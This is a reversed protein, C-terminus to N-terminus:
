RTHAASEIAHARRRKWARALSSKPPAPLPAARPARSPACRPSPRTPMTDGSVDSSSSAALEAHERSPRPARPEHSRRGRPGHGHTTVSTLSSGSSASRGAVAASFASARVASFRGRNAHHPPCWQVGIRNRSAVARHRRHWPRTRPTRRGGRLADPCSIRRDDRRKHTERKRRSPAGHARQASPSRAAASHRKAAAANARDADSHWEGAVDRQLRRKKGRDGLRKKRWAIGRSRASGRRVRDGFQERARTPAAVAAANRADSSLEGSAGHSRPAASSGRTPSNNTRRPGASVAAHRNEFPDLARAARQSRRRNGNRGQMAQRGRECKQQQRSGSICEDRQRSVCPPENRARMSRLRRREDHPANAPRSHARIGPAGRQPDFGTKRRESVREHGRDIRAIRAFKGFDLM